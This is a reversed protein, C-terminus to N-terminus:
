LNWRAGIIFITAAPYMDPDTMGDSGQQQYREMGADLTLGPTPMWILKLGYSIADYASVRYDSSYFEPSGTFRVDYFDAAKQTYYRFSPSVIFRDGLRQYWALTLTEASIGFSDGYHRMGLEMSGNLPTVFQNLGLYLIQKTKSEPRKEYTLVGNLEVLKYPDSIFGSVQGVSINATFLTTPSVVQTIGLIADITDKTDSPRGNAPKLSDHTFAGGFLLTTNKRNFDVADQLSIGTSQYDSEQSFSLQGGPTHDGMRKSLGLNFAWRSDSFDAM